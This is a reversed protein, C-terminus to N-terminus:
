LETSTQVEMVGPERGVRSESFIGIDRCVDCDVSKGSTIWGWGQVWRESRSCVQGSYRQGSVHAACGECILGVAKGSM